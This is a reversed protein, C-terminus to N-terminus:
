EGFGYRTWNLHKRVELTIKEYLPIKKGVIQANIKQNPLLLYEPNNITTRATLLKQGTDDTKVEPDIDQIIATRVPYGPEHFRIKVIAGKAVNTKDVQPVDIAVDLSDINAIELISENEQMKRGLKEQLDTSLVRGGETTILTQSTDRREQLTQLKQKSTNVLTQLHTLESQAAFLERQATIISANNQQWRDSSAGLEEQWDQQLTAVEANKGSIQQQISSIESIKRDKTSLVTSLESRKRGVEQESLVGRGGPKAWIARYRKLDARVIAEQDELHAIETRLAQINQLMVVQQQRIQQIAPPESTLRQNIRGAQNQIAQSAMQTEMMRSHLVPLRQQLQDLQREQEQLQQQTTLIEDELELTSVRAIKQNPQILDGTEVFFEVVTGPVQMFLRNTIPPELVGATIVDNPVPIFGAAALATLVGAIAIWRPVAFIPESLSSPPEPLLKQPSPAPKPAAKPAAKAKPPNVKLPSSEPTSSQSM